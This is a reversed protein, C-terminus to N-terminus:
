WSGTMVWTFCPKTRYTHADILGAHHLDLLKTMQLEKEGHAYTCSVGFPCLRGQNYHMCMETKIKTKRDDTELVFPSKRGAQSTPTKPRPSPTWSPSDRLQFGLPSGLRTSATEVTTETMISGPSPTAKRLDFPSPTRDIPVFSYPSRRAQPTRMIGSHLYQRSCDPQYGGPIGFRADNYPGNPLDNIMSERGVPVFSRPTHPERSQPQPKVSKM